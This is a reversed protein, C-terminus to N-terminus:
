EDKVGGKMNKIKGYIYRAHNIQSPPVGGILLEREMKDKATMM